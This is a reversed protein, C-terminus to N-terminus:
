CSNEYSPVRMIKLIRIGELSSRFDAGYLGIVLSDNVGM